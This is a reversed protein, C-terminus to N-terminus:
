ILETVLKKALYTKLFDNSASKDGNDYPLSDPKQM